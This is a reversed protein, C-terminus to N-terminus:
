YTIKIGAMFSRSQPYNGHDVGLYLNNGTNSEDRGIEPDFGDYKTFTLLNQASVYISANSLQLKKLVKQPLNYTLQVNKLRCYSGDKVYFDSARFNKPRDAEDLEPVTGQPNAPYFSKEPDYTGSWCKSRLDAYVNGTGHASNLYYEMVNFIKNGWQGQFFMYFDFNKYSLTIPIGYVFDPHPSGLYTRDSADIKGDNNLDKFRFDGPETIGDNQASAAVEEPTQFIGDTVYGYFCAIPRGVETKTVYDNISGETSLLAGYIPENGTGLSTVKNKIYSINFGIDYKFDAIQDKYSINFEIGKNQISGANVMPNENLGASLSVPVQILMDSTNKVFCEISSSLRNNLFNIDLGVNYSETKEWKINDNGLTLSAAGPYTTHLGTGFPYSLNTDMMKYRAYESIRNNGLQGWGVRLKAFSIVNQSQMWEEGSFKWGLSVSPFFGWRNKKSFVSSADSRFNAQLLYKDDFSYSVRSIFGMANWENLLGYAYDGFYASALYWYNSSNGPAGKKSTEQDYVRSMEITQGVLASINHKGSEYAYTLINNLETKNTRTDFNTVKTLDTPAEFNEELKNVEDFKSRNYFNTYNSLKFQYTFYKLFKASLDINIDFRNTTASNHNREIMAIPHNESYYGATNYTHILPSQYLAKKLVGDAGEPILDRDTNTYLINTKLSLWDTLKNNLNVRLSLRQYDSTKVIGKENYYNGSVMFKTRNNGGSISLNYQQKIGTQTVADWWSKPTYPSSAITDLLQYKRPDYYLNGGNDKSMYLQGDQSYYHTGQVYDRMLAFDEIGMVDISKWPNSFGVYGDFSIRTKGEEGGKTTVLVVGNAARAGYISASGADKLVEISAIDNPNIHDINDVIFGDVVYLPDSDNITGTGRIKITTSGGPAGSNQIVLVGPAKGQIAQAPNPVASAVIEDAKVSSVAGTLDSKKQTAYGIVVLEDLQQDNSSLQISLANNDKIKVTQSSYGVYSIQIEDGISGAISFNGDFDTIVAKATNKNKITAGIISEQTASDVVRGKVYSQGQAWCDIGLNIFFLILFLITFGRNGM